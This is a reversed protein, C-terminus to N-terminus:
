LVGGAVGSVVGVAKTCCGVLGVANIGVVLGNSQARGQTARAASQGLQTAAREGQRPRVAVAPSGGDAVARKLNAAAAGVATQAAPRDRVICCQGEVSAVRDGHAIGDAATSGNGHLAAVRRRQCGVAAIGTGSGYVGTCRQYKLIICRGCAATRKVPRAGQSNFRRAGAKGACHASGRQATAPKNEIRCDASKTQSLGAVCRRDGNVVGM